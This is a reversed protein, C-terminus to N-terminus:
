SWWSRTTTAGARARSDAVVPLDSSYTYGAVFADGGADVAISTGTESNSGGVYTSYVLSGAANLKSAFADTVGRLSPQIPRLLPFDPASTVGTVYANGEADVAIGNGTEPYGYSSSTGGLYTSFV